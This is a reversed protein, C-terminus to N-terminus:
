VAVCVGCMTTFATSGKRLTLPNQKAVVITGESVGMSGKRTWTEKFQDETVGYYNAGSWKQHALTDVGNNREERQIRDVYALMGRQAYDKAFTDIVLADDHFEVVTIFGLKAIRPIFDMMQMDNMGSAVWNFSPSLNYALMTEPRKSRVGESFNTLEMMDPSATEMWILDAHHAFAWGRVVAAMVSEM